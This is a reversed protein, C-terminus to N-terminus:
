DGACKVYGGKSWENGAHVLRLRWDGIRGILELQGIEGKGGVVFVAM